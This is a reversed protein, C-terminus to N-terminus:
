PFIWEKLDIIEYWDYIKDNIKYRKFTSKIEGKNKGKTYFDHHEITEVVDEADKETEFAKIWDGTGHEPYYNHGAILLYTKM